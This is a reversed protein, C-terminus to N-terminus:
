DVDIHGLIKGSDADVKVEKIEENLFGVDCVVLWMKGELTTSILNFSGHYEELFKQTRDIADKADINPAMYLIIKFM